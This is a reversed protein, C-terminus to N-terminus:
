GTRQYSANLLVPGRIARVLIVQEVDILASNKRSTESAVPLKQSRHFTALGTVSGFSRPQKNGHRAASNNIPRDLQHQYAHSANSVVKNM